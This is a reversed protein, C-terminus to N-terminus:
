EEELENWQLRQDLATIQTQLSGYNTELTGVRTTLAAIADANDQIASNITAVDAPHNQIWDAIEQLTDLAEQADQPILAEALIERVSKGSDNGILTNLTSTLTGVDNSWTGDGRLFYGQQGAAPAPVLGASGAQSATAGLMVEVVVEDLSKNIWKQSLADYALVQGDIIPTTLNVNILDGLEAVNSEGTSGCLLKEGLYLKGTNANVESIFYLTDGDKVALREFAAPTGRIFKVYKITGALIVGEKNM